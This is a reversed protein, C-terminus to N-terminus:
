GAFLETVREPDSRALGAGHQRSSLLHDQPTNERENCLVAWTLLLLRDIEPDAFAGEHTSLVLLWNAGFVTGAGPPLPMTLMSAFGALLLGAGEDV